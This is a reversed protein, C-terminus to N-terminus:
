ADDPRQPPPLAGALPRPDRCTDYSLWGIVTGDDVAEATELCPSQPLQRNAPTFLPDNEGPLKSAGRVRETLLVRTGNVVAVCDLREGDEELLRVGTLRMGIPWAKTVGVAHRGREALCARIGPLLRPLTATWDPRPELTRRPLEAQPRACAAILLIAGGLAAARRMPHEMAARYVGWMWADFAM